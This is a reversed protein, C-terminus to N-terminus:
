LQKLLEIATKDNHKAAMSFFYKANSRSKVVGYGNLYCKGIFTVAEVCGQSAAKQAYELSKQPNASLIYASSYLKMLTIQAKVYGMEAAKILHSEISKAHKEGYIDILLKAAWYYYYPHDPYDIEEIIEVAKSIDKNVGIGFFYIQSLRIYAIPIQMSKLHFLDDLHIKIYNISNESLNDENVIAYVNALLFGQNVSKNYYDNALSKNYSKVPGISYEYLEGLRYLACGNGEDAITELFEIDESLLIDKINPANCEDKQIICKSINHISDIRDTIWRNLDYSDSVTLYGGLYDIDSNNFVGEQVKEPLVDFSNGSHENYYKLVSKYLIQNWREKDFLPKAGSLLSQTMNNVDFHCPDFNNILSIYRAENEKLLPIQGDTNIINSRIMLPTIPVQNYASWFYVDAFYGILSELYSSFQEVSNFVVDDTFELDETYDYDFQTTPVIEMFQRECIGWTTIHFALGGKNPKFFPTILLMPLNPLDAVLQDIEHGKPATGSKWAGGYFIVPHSSLSTLNSNCFAEVERELQPFVFKNFDSNNSPTLICHLAVSEEQHTFATGLSENKMVMPLVKLPWTNIDDAAFIRNILSDFDREINELRNQHLEEEIKRNLEQGERLLQKMREHNREQAAKQFERQKQQLEKSNNAGRWNNFIALGVNTLLMVGTAIPM